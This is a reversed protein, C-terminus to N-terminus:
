DLKGQYCADDWLTAQFRPENGMLVQRHSDMEFVLIHM